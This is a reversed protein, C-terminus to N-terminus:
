VKRTAVVKLRSIKSRLDQADDTVTALKANENLFLYHGLTKLQALYGSGERGSAAADTSVSNSSLLIWGNEGDNSTDIEENSGAYGVFAYIELDYAGEAVGLYNPFIFNGWGNFDAGSTSDYTYETISYGNYGFEEKSSPVFEGSNVEVRGIHVASVSEWKLDEGLRFCKISDPQSIDFWYLPEYGTDMPGNDPSIIVEPPKTDWIPQFRTAEIEFEFNPTPEILRILFLYHQGDSFSNFELPKISSIFDIGESYYYDRLQFKTIYPTEFTPDAIPTEKIEQTVVPGSTVVEYGTLVKDNIYNRLAPFTIKFPTESLLTEDLKIENQSVDLYSSHFQKISSGVPESFVVPGDNIAAVVNSFPQPPFPNETFILNDGFMPPLAPSGDADIVEVVNGSAPFEGSLDGKHLLRLGIPAGHVGSDQSNHNNVLTQAVGIQEAGIQTATTNHPNNSDNVHAQFDVDDAKDDIQLQLDNKADDIETDIEAKTYADVQEATVNHPNQDDNIHSEFTDNDIFYFVGTSDDRAYLRKTNRNLALEGPEMNSAVPVGTPSDTYAISFRAFTPM